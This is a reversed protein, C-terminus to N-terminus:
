LNWDINKSAALLHFDEYFTKLLRGILEREYNNAILDKDVRLRHVVEFFIEKKVLEEWEKQTDTRHHKFNETWKSYIPLGEKDILEHVYKSVVFFRAELDKPLGKPKFDKLNVVRWM